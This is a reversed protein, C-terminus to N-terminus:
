RGILIQTVDTEECRKRLWKKEEKDLHASLREYVEQHYDKLWNHEEKTLLEDDILQVDIPFLSLTEFKFFDGYTESTNGKVCVLLNEIRIGYEGAEYYGPENSFVMGIKLPTIRSPASSISPPSEHVNLFFGVGHGTGHRYNLHQQWLFQRALIDLQHGSTGEPFQSRALAIHGKLVLTFHRKQLVTPESLAITRTIDTTGSLYQGGSDILLIGKQQIDACNEQEARYHVIAGNAEYGVIAAFSSSVYNPQQSRMTKLQEGAEYESVTRQALTQELWRYFRVLAVGDYEMTQRLHTLETENKCAKAIKVLSSDELLNADLLQYLQASFSTADLLVNTHISLRELYKPFATYPRLTINAKGLKTALTPNIKDLNVFLYVHQLQVSAYAYFVPNYDTDSGRLNFLWAIEDLASLLHIDANKTQMEARLDALKETTTQGAFAINHEFIPADSLSPRDQWIPAILDHQSVLQFDHQALKQEIRELQKVSFLRGDLGIRSNEELHESLYDLYDSGGDAKTKHWGIESDKLQRAAQLYYRSDTWLGAWDHAVILLGASGNFGSLWARANWYDASYESQHPDSSPIIYADLNAEHMVQRLRAIKLKSM